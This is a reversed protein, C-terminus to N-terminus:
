KGRKVGRGGVMLRMMGLLCTVEGIEVDWENWWRLGDASLMGWPLMGAM